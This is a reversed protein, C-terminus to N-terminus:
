DSYLSIMDKKEGPNHAMDTYVPQFSLIIFFISIIVTFINLALSHNGFIKVVFRAVFYFITLYILSLFLYILMIPDFWIVSYFWIYSIPIIGGSVLFDTALVPCLLVLILLIIIKVILQQKKNQPVEKATRKTMSKAFENEYGCPCRFNNDDTNASNCDPCTWAM